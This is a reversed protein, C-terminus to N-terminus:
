RISVDIGDCQNMERVLRTQWGDFEDLPIYVVGDLDGPQEVGKELLAVVRERGLKGYLLGHEFVVNQRARSKLELADKARGEDCATYLIIAFIVDTYKELKLIIPLGYSPKEKLIVPELGISIIFDKVKLLTLEDHGHVIFVKKGLNQKLLIDRETDIKDGTDPHNRRVKLENMLDNILIKLSSIVDDNVSTTGKAIQEFRDSFVPDPNIRFYTRINSCLKIWKEDSVELCGVDRQNFRSFDNLAWTRNSNIRIIIKDCDQLLVNLEKIKEDYTM